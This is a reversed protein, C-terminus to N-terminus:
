ESDLVRNVPSNKLCKDQGRIIQIAHLHLLWYELVRVNSNSYAQKKRVLYQSSAVRTTCVVIHFPFFHNHTFLLREMQSSDISM